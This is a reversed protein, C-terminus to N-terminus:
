IFGEEDDGQNSGFMAPEQDFRLLIRVTLKIGMRGTQCPQVARKLKGM